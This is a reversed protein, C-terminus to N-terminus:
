PKRAALLASFTSLALIADDRNWDEAVSHPGLHAYQMLALRLSDIRQQKTRSQTEKPGLNEPEIKRWEELAHRISSVCNRWGTSGGSDFSDRANRLAAWVAEWDSPSNASFPIEVMVADRLNLQRLTTTWIERSYRITGQQSFPCPVSCPERGPDGSLIYRIEGSVQARFHVERGNRIGEFVTLTPILWDWLFTIQQEFAVTRLSTPYYATGIECSGGDGDATFTARLNELILPSKTASPPTFTIVAPLYLRFGSATRMGALPQVGEHFSIYGVGEFNNLLITIHGM